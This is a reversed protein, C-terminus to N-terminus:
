LNSLDCTRVERKLDGKYLPNELPSSNPLGRVLEEGVGLRGFTGDIFAKRGM